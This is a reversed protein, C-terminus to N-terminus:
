ESIKEDRLRDVKAFLVYLESRLHYFELATIKHGKQPAWNTTAGMPGGWNNYISQRNKNIAPRWRDGMSCTTM